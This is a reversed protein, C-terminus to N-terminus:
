LRAAADLGLPKEDAMAKAAPLRKGKITFGISMKGKRILLSTGFETTVYFAEDGIGPAPTLRAGESAAKESNFSELSSFNLVLKPDATAPAGTQRWDCMNTSFAITHHGPDIPVGLVASIEAPTLVACSDTLPEAAVTKPTPPPPEPKKCGPIILTVALLPLLAPHSRM